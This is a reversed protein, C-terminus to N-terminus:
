EWHNRQYDRRAALAQPVEALVDEDATCYDILADYQEAILAAGYAVDPYTDRLAPQLETAVDTDAVKNM